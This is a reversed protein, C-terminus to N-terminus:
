EEIVLEDGISTRTEAITGTPLELVGRARWHLGSIRYPVLSPQVHIVRFRKDVFVVDIPFHMGVTHVVQSPMILLGTGADM